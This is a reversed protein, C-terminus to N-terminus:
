LGVEWLGGTSSHSYSLPEAAAFDVSIGSLQANAPAISQLISGILTLLALGTMLVKRSRM